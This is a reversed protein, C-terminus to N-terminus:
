LFNSTKGKGNSQKDRFVSTLFSLVPSLIAALLDIASPCWPFGLDALRAHGGYPVDNKVQMSSKYELGEDETRERRYM